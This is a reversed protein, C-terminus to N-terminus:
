EEVFDVEEWNEFLEILDDCGEIYQLDNYCDKLNEIVDEVDIYSYDKYNASVLNGYGNYKFYERNPNFEARHMSGNEDTYSNDEDYGYFARELIELPECGSYFDNLDEMLYYKDDGLFGNYIDITEVIENFVEENNELVDNLFKKIENYM